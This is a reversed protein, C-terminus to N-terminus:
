SHSQGAGPKRSSGFREPLRVSGSVGIAAAVVSPRPPSANTTNHTREAEGEIRAASNSKSSTQLPHQAPRTNQFCIWGVPVSLFFSLLAALSSVAFHCTLVTPVPWDSASLSWGHSTCARTECKV